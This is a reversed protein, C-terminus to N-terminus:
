REPVPDPRTSTTAPWVAIWDEDTMTRGFSGFSGARLQPDFADLSARLSM